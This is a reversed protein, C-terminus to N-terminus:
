SKEASALMLGQYFRSPRDASVSRINISEPKCGATILGWALDTENLNVAPFIKRGVSYSHAGKLASIIFKGGPRVLSAINFMFTRWQQRDDTASEACFNSVVVDYNRAPGPLPPTLRADCRGLWTIRKRLQKERAAIDGPTCPRGLELTLTASVFPQWNFALKKEELWLRVEALNTELYDCFHIEKVKHAAGILPYITPGGGFDLLSSANPITKYTDVFFRVLASNEMALDSYYEHLYTKPNFERWDQVRPLPSTGHTDRGKIASSSNVWMAPTVTFGLTSSLSDTNVNWEKYM